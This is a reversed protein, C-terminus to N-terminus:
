RNGTITRWFRVWWPRSQEKLKLEKLDCINISSKYETTARELERDKTEKISKLESDVLSTNGLNRSILDQKKDALEEVCKREIDDKFQKYARDLSQRQVNLLDVDLKALEQREIESVTDVATKVFGSALAGMSDM